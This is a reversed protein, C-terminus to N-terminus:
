SVVVWMEKSFRQHSCNPHSLQKLSVQHLAYHTLSVLTPNNDHGNLQSKPLFYDQPIEPDRQCNQHHQREHFHKQKVAEVSTFRAVPKLLSTPIMEKGDQSLILVKYAVRSLSFAAIEEMCLYLSIFFLQFQEFAM